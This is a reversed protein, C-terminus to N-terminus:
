GLARARLPGLQTEYFELSGAHSAEDTPLLESWPLALRALRALTSAEETGALQRLTLGRGWAGERAYNAFRDPQTFFALGPQDAAHRARLSRLRAGASGASRADRGHWRKSDDLSHPSLRPSSRPKKAVVATADGQESRRM